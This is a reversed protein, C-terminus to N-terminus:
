NTLENSVYVSLAHLLPCARFTHTREDDKRRAWRKMGKSRRGMMVSASGPGHQAFRGAGQNSGEETGERVTVVLLLSRLARKKRQGRQREGEQQVVGGPRNARDMRITATPTQSTARRWAVTRVVLSLLWHSNYTFAVQGRKKKGTGWNRNV